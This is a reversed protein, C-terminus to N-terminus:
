KKRNKRAAYRADRLAQQEAALALARRRKDDDLMAARNDREMAEIAALRAAEIRRAEEREVRRAERAEAVAKQAAVRAIVAPDDPKPMAQFKATAAQRAKAAAAQRDAFNDPKYSPM